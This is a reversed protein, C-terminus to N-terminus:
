EQSIKWVYKSIIIDTERNPVPGSRLGIAIETWLQGKTRELIRNNSMIKLAEKNAKM